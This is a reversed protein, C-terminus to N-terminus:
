SYWRWGRFGRMPVPEIPTWWPDRVIYWGAPWGAVEGDDRWCTGAIRCWGRVAGDHVMYCRPRTRGWPWGNWRHDGIQDHWTPLHRVRFNILDGARDAQRLEALYDLLPKTKPWTVVIDRQELM